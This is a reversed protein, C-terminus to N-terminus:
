ILDQENVRSAPFRACIYLIIETERRYLGPVFTLEDECFIGYM